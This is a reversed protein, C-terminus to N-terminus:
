AEANSKGVEVLRRLLPECAQNLRGTFTLGFVFSSLGASTFCSHAAFLITVGCAGQTLAAAFDSLHQNTALPLYHRRRFRALVLPSHTGNLARVGAVGSTRQLKRQDLNLLFLFPSRM